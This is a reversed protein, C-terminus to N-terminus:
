PTFELTVGSLPMGEVRARWTEGARVGHAATITGTTVWEGAELPARNGQADLVSVLHAVAKLPSGLVNAGRGTDVLKGDRELRLTFTELMEPLDTGLDAITRPPGVLLRGHLGGDAVTDPPEFKWGPFHSQVIEFGCAVQDICGLIEALGMGARPPSRFRFVIEPEIKPDALPKVPSRGSAVGLGLLTNEYVYGWIPAYVNYVPWMAPNTFGIKRGVPKAGEALRVRHLRAAADYSAALDFGPFRSTFPVLSACTDQARKVERAVADLDLDLSTTAASM